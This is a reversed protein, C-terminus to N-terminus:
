IGQHGVPLIFLYWFRSKQGDLALIDWTQLQNKSTPKKFQRM